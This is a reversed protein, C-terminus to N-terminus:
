ELEQMPIKDQRYAGGRVILHLYYNSYALLVTAVALVNAIQTM